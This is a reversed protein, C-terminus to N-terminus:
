SVGDEDEEDNSAVEVAHNADVEVKISFFSFNNDNSSKFMCKM